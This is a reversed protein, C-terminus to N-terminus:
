TLATTPSTFSPPATMGPVGVANWVDDVMNEPLAPVLKFLVLLVNDTVEKGAAGSALRADLVVGVLAANSPEAM